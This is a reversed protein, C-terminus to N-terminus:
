SAFPNQEKRRYGLGFMVVLAFAFLSFSAPLPVASVSYSLTVKGYLGKCVHLLSEFYAKTGSNNTITTTGIYDDINATTLVLAGTASKKHHQVTFGYSEADGFTDAFSAGYKRVGKQNTYDYAGGAYLSASTDPSSGYKKKPTFTYTFTIESNAPLYGFVDATGTGGKQFNLTTLTVDTKGVKVTGMDDVYTVITAAQASGVAVFAGVLFAVVAQFRIM